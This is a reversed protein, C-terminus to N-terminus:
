IWRGNFIYIDRSVWIHLCGRSEFKHIYSVKVYRAWLVVFSITLLLWQKIIVYHQTNYLYCVLFSERSIPFQIVDITSRSYNMQYPDYIGHANHILYVKITRENIMNQTFIVNTMLYKVLLKFSLYLSIKFFRPLELTCIRNWFICVSYVYKYINLFYHFRRFPNPFYLELIQM